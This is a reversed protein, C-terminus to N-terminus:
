RKQSNKKNERFFTTKIKEEFRDNKKNSTRILFQVNQHKKNQKEM